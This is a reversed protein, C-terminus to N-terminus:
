RPEFPLFTRATRPGTVDGPRSDFLRGIRNGAVDELAHDVRISYRRPQWPEAPAFAWRRERNSVVIRGLVANASLRVVLLRNLLAFDLPKPFVVILSDRTGAKPTSLTWDATRVLGREMGQARFAKAHKERLPRGAADPWASDIVLRYRMGERLPLGLEERPRPSRRSRGPDFLVSLRRKDPDWLEVEGGASYFPEDLLSDGAYLKLHDLAKGTSMPASFEVYMRLLNVPLINASPYVASVVTTAAGSDAPVRWSRTAGEWRAFYIVGPKPPFRPTFRLTHGDLSYSGLMSLGFTDGVTVRLTGEYHQAAIRDNVPWAEVSGYHPSATDTVFRLTIGPPLGDEGKCSATGLALLCAGLMAVRTGPPPILPM